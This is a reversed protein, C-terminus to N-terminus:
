IQERLTQCHSFLQACVELQRHLFFVSGLLQSLAYVVQQASLRVNSNLASTSLAANLSGDIYSDKERYFIM